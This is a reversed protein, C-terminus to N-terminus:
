RGEGRNAQHYQFLAAGRLTGTALDDIRDANRACRACGSDRLTRATQGTLEPTSELVLRLLEGSRGPDVEHVHHALERLQDARLDDILARIQAEAINGRIEPHRGAWALALVRPSIGDLRPDQDQPSDITSLRDASRNELLVINNTGSLHRDPQHNRPLLECLKQFVDEALLPSRVQPIGEGLVTILQGSFLTYQNARDAGLAGPEPSDRRRAKLVFTRNELERLYEPDPLQLADDVGLVPAIGCYCCDLVIVKATAASEQMRDYIHRLGVYSWLRNPQSHRLALYLDDDGPRRAAEAHGVFYVLLTDGARLKDAGGDVADLAGMLDAADGPNEVHTTSEWLPSDDFIQKLALASHTITPFEHFYGSDYRGSSILLARRRQDTGNM